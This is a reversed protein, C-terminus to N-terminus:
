GARATRHDSNPRWGARCCRYRCPPLEAHDQLVGEQEAFRDALFDAVSTKRGVVLLNVGGGPERM